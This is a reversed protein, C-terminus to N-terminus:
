EPCAPGICMLMPARTDTRTTGLISDGIIMSQDGSIILHTYCSAKGMKVM